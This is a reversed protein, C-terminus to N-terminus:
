KNSGLGHFLSAVAFFGCLLFLGLAGLVIALLMAEFSTIRRAPKKM